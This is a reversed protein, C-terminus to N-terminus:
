QKKPIGFVIPMKVMVRVPRGSRKGPSWIPMGRTVRLAEEDCGGGIGQLIKANTITGDAEVVFVVMVVGQIGKDVAEKPYTMNRRLYFLRAADGGPYRPYVDITTAVATDTKEQKGIEEGGTGFSSTDATEPEVDQKEVEKPVPKMEEEPAVTDAVVPALQKVEPTSAHAKAMEVLEADEPPAFPIYEVEYIYEMELDMSADQVLYVIFPVLVILLFISIGIVASIALTKLYRRQLQYSGYEKNRNRFVLETLSETKILKRM